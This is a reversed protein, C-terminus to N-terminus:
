ASRALRSQGRRSASTVAGPRLRRGPRMRDPRASGVSQEADPRSGDDGPAVPTRRRRRGYRGRLVSAARDLRELDHRQLAAHRLRARRTQRAVRLLRVGRRDAPELDVLDARFGLGPLVVQPELHLGVVDFGIARACTEFPNAALHTARRAVERLQASGPGKALDALRDLGVRGYGERLASDAVCLAEDFPLRRLCHELTADQSTWHGDVDAPDLEARHLRAPPADTPVRRGRSVVVNPVAPVTKVAWGHHLAADTLGVVGGVHTACRVAADASPLGFRGKGLRVVDGVEVARELDARDVHALLVRRRAVGGLQALVEVV